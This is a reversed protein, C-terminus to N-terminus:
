SRRKPQALPSVATGVEIHGFGLAALGDIHAADKDLGAASGVRNPFQIGM